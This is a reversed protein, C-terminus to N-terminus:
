AQLLQQSRIVEVIPAYLTRYWHQVAEELSIEHGLSFERNFRLAEIQQHILTYRGPATVRWETHPYLHDIGTAELFEAQEAKLILEDPSVGPSLPVRTKVLTVHAVIRKIGMQRAISVRHNGDLVFYTQGIQYVDIPPLGTQSEFMARVRAWRQRNVVRRPLFGQAFDTYRGVSGVIHDVPIERTSRNGTQTAHLKRRVDEYSLLDASRGALRALVEQVAARRRARDFEMRGAHEARPNQWHQM